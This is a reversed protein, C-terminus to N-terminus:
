KAKGPSMQLSLSRLKNKLPACIFCAPFKELFDGIELYTFQADFKIKDNVEPLQWMESGEKWQDSSIVKSISRLKILKHDKGEASVQLVEEISFESM